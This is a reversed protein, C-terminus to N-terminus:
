NTGRHDEYEEGKADLFPIRKRGLHQNGQDAMARDDKPEDRGETHPARAVEESRSFRHEPSEDEKAIPARPEADQPRKARDHGKPVVLMM